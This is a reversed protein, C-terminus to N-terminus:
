NDNYYEDDGGPSFNASNAKLFAGLGAELARLRDEITKPPPHPALPATQPQRSPHRPPTLMVPLAGSVPRANGESRKRGNTWGRSYQFTQAAAVALVVVIVVLVTSLRTVRCM